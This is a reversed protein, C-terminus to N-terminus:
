TAETLMPLVVEFRAGRQRDARDVVRVTGGHRAVIGAVIALGLGSGGEARTRGEDLRVFREFVRERDPPPIGPGSDEVFLIVAGDGPDAGGAAVVGIAVSGGGDRAHRLANSMLNDIVQGIRPRDVEVRAEPARTGRMLEIGRSEALARFRLVAEDALEDACVAVLPGTGTGGDMRALTQLDDVIHGMRGIDRSLSDWQTGDAPYLGSTLMEVRTSLLALPTRLEHAADAVFRRRREEQERITSAMQNFAVALDRLEHRARPLAVQADLDGHALRASSETLRRIPAVLVSAWWLSLALAAALVVVVTVIAARRTADIILDAVASRGGRVMSGVLVHVTRGDGITIRPADDLSLRGERALAELRAIEDSRLGVTDFIQGGDTVLAVPQQLTRDALDPGGPRPDRGGMMTPGMAAPGIEDPRRLMTQLRGITGRSSDNDTYLREILPAIRVALEIDVRRGADVTERVTVSGVGLSFVGLAVVVLVLHSVAIWTALGIARRDAPTPRPADHATM